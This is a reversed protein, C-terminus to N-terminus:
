ITDFLMDGGGVDDDDDDHEDDNDIVIDLFGLLSAFGIALARRKM